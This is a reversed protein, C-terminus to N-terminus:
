AIGIVLSCEAWKVGCVSQKQVQNQRSVHKNYFHYSIVCVIYIYNVPVAVIHLWHFNLKM